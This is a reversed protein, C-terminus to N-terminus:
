GNGGRVLRIVPVDPMIEGFRPDHSIVAVATGGEAIRVIARVLMSFGANDQYHSPEDLFVIQRKPGYALAVALRKQAAKTLELPHREMERDLGLLSVLAGPDNGWRQALHIEERVTKRCFMTGAQQPSFGALSMREEPKMAAADRGEIVIHGASQVLVGAALKALTTKGSGNPGEILCVGGRPITLSYGDFLPSCGPYGFCLGEVAFATEEHPAPLSVPESKTYETALVDGAALTITRSFRFTPLLWSDEALLAAGEQTHVHDSVIGPFRQRFDTDLETMPRDLFLFRPDAILSAGIVVRQLEGGSLTVIDRDALTEMEMLSLMHAVRERIVSPAIGRCELPFALEGTVTRKLGSTQAHPDELVIGAERRYDGQVVPTGFLELWGAAAAQPSLYRAFGCVTLGLATKGSGSPGSVLATEGADLSFSLDNFVPQAGISLYLNKSKLVM